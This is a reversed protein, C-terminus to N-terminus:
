KADQKEKYEKGTIIHPEKKEPKYLISVAEEKSNYYESLGRNWEKDVYSEWNQETIDVFVRMTDTPVFDPVQIDARWSIHSAEHEGCFRCAIIFPTVGDRSNWLIEQNRCDKCYYIMLAYAEAHRLKKRM